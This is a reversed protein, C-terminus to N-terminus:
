DMVVAALLPYSRAAKALHLRLRGRLTLTDVWTAPLRGHAWGDQGFCLVVVQDSGTASLRIGDSAPIGMIHLASPATGEGAKLEMEVWGNPFVPNGIQRVPVGSEHLWAHSAHMASRCCRGDDRIGGPLITDLAGPFRQRCAQRLSHEAVAERRVADVLAKLPTLMLTEYSGGPCVGALPVTGISAVGAIPLGGGGTTGDEDRAAYMAHCLATVGKALDHLHRWAELHVEFVADPLRGRLLEVRRLMASALDVALQKENLLAIRGPATGGSLISWINRHEYLSAGEAFLAPIGGAKLWKPDASLPFTHFILNGRIYLTMTVVELGAKMISKLEECAGPDCASPEAPLWNSWFGDPTLASDSLAAQFADLNVRCSSDFVSVHMRDLRIVHRTTGRLRAEHVYRIINATNAAPLRGAGLFEGLADYEAALGVGPKAYLWPNVPLFPHFDFPTIKTEIELGQINGDVAALIDVYDQAICGFSRLILRKGRPALQAAFLRLLHAVVASPPYREPRSNHLVSYDAETLTLVLGDMDPVAELFEVLSGTVFRAYADGLLDFEGHEDLLGPEAALMGAPLMIERHWFYVRKGHQHCLGTIRNLLDRQVQVAELDRVARVAPWAKFEVAGHMGGIVPHHCEGCIELSHVDFREAEALVRELYPIDPQVPHCLSWTIEPHDVSFQSVVGEWCWPFRGNRCKDKNKM